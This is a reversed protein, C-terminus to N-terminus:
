GARRTMVLRNLGNRRTYRVRTMLRKVFLIGLGGIQREAVPADVRPDARALPNFKAANDTVTIQVAAGRGVVAMEVSIQVAAKRRRTAARGHELVNTVIEDLALHLDREVEKTISHKGCFRRLQDFVCSLDARSTLRVVVKGAQEGGGQPGRRKQARVGSSRNGGRAKQSRVESQQSGARTKRSWVTRAM